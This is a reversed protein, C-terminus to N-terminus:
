IKLLEAPIADVGATKRDKLTKIATSIEKITPQSTDINLDDATPTIDAKNLPDPCNLIRGM